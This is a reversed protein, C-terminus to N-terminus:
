LRMKSSSGSNSRDPPATPFGLWFVEKIQGSKLDEGLALFREGPDNTSLMQLNIVAIECSGQRHTVTPVFLLCFSLLFCHLTFGSADSVDMRLQKSVSWHIGSFRSSWACPGLSDGRTSKLARHIYSTFTLASNYVSHRPCPGVHM